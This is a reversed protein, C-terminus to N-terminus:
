SNLVFNPLGFNSVIFAAVFLVITMLVALITSQALVYKWTLNSSKAMITTTLLRVISFAALFALLYFGFALVYYIIWVADVLVPHDKGYYFGVAGVGIFAVSFLIYIIVAFGIAAVPINVLNTIIPYFFSFRGDIWGKKRLLLIEGITLVVLGAILVFAFGAWILTADNEM